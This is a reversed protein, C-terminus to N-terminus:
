LNAVYRSNKRHLILVQNFETVGLTPIIAITGWTNCHIM